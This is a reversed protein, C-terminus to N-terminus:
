GAPRGYATILDDKTAANAEEESAGQSVAYAVWTAKDASKAPIPGDGDPDDPEDDHEDDRRRAAANRASELVAHELGGTVEAEAIMDRDLLHDIQPQHLGSTPLGGGKHVRQLSGGEGNAYAGVIVDILPATCVYQTESM